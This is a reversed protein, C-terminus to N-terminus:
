TSAIVRLCALTFPMSPLTILDQPSGKIVRQRLFPDTSHRDAPFYCAAGKALVSPLEPSGRPFCHQWCGGLVGARCCICHASVDSVSACVTASACGTGQDPDGGAWGVPETDGCHVSLGKELCGM